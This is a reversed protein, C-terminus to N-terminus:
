KNAIGSLTALRARGAVSAQQRSAPWASPLFEPFQRVDGSRMAERKSGNPAVACVGPIRCLGESIKILSITVHVFDGDFHGHDAFAHDALAAVVAAGLAVGAGDGYAVADMGATVGERRARFVGFMGLLDGADASALRSGALVVIVELAHRFTDLNTHDPVFGIAHGESQTLCQKRGPPCSRGDAPLRGNLDSLDAQM